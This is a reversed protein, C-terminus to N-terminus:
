VQVLEVRHGDPDVIVARLGWESLRPSSVVAHPFGGLANVADDVSPVRFGIRVNQTPAADAAPYIEFVGGGSLEASVHAPGAGHQHQTFKLGLCSYFAVARAVDLSRIVVLSLAINSM